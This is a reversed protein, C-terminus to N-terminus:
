NEIYYGIGHSTLILPTEKEIKKRLKRIHVDVTRDTVYANEGWVKDLLEQRKFVKGPSKALTSLLNFETKTLKIKEGDRHVTFNTLNISISSFNLIQNSKNTSKKLINKVRLLLNKISIPKTIYDEAGISLGEYEDDSSSKATLFFIPIESYAPTKKISKCVDYGNMKPMMVDLIILDIDSNVKLLAQVGDLASVVKYGENSLNYTLLDIIDQEDDVILITKQM